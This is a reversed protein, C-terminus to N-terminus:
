NKAEIEANRIETLKGVIPELKKSIGDSIKKAIEHNYEKEQCIIHCYSVDNLKRQYVVHNNYISTISNGKMKGAKDLQDLSVCFNYSLITRLNKNEQENLNFNKNNTYSILSGDIDTIIISEIFEYKELLNLLYDNSKGQEM